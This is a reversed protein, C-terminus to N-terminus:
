ERRMWKNINHIQNRWVCLEKKGAEVIELRPVDEILNISILYKAVNRFYVFCIFGKPKLANMRHYLFGTIVLLGKLRGLKM